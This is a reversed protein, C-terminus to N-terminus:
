VERAKTRFLMDVIGGNFQKMLALYDDARVSGSCTLLEYDDGMETLMLNTSRFGNKYYFQRRKQRQVVNPADPTVPEINLMIQQNVYRRKIAALIQSGYGQSRVKESVALYLVYTQQRRSITYSAGVLQGADTFALLEVNPRRLRWMLFPMPIQEYFPFATKFLQKIEPLVQSNRSVLETTLM